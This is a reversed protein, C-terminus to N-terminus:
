RPATQTIRIFEESDVVPREPTDSIEVATSYILRVIKSYKDYYIKDPSDGPRHYDVHVGTFYFVFPIGLRGFNWHDSRRYFQNRDNLDNYRMNLEIASDHIANAVELRRNMDSSIIEAGIIYVYDTKGEAEMDADIRGIMDANLNAVINEVPVTPNDSYYRSGILGIEEATVHLLIISRKPQVGADRAEALAKGIAMLAVTGSGNDDAGNYIFDGTADPSGIGMHDYHASLVIYEDKLVPDSGEVVAAINRLPVREVDTDPKNELVFSTEYAKFGAPNASIQEYYDSLTLGRADLNLMQSVMAPSASLIATQFRSRGPEDGLRMGSPIGMLLGYDENREAFVAEDTTPIYIVGVAGRQFLAERVRMNNNFTPDVLTDGDAVYRVDTFFMAWKGRVEVGDFHNVGRAADIVGAGIFVVDAKADFTAGGERTISSRSEASFIGKYVQASDAGNVSWVTYEIANTTEGTLYFDQFYGGYADGIGPVSLGRYFDVIYEGARDIGAQGTGRGEFGDGAIVYLHEKLLDPTITASFTHLKETSSIIADASSNEKSGACGVLVLSVFIFFANKLM